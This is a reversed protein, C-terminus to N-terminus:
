LFRTLFKFKDGKEGIGYMKEDILVFCYPRNPDSDSIISDSLMAGNDISKKYRGDMVVNSFLNTKELLEFTDKGIDELTFPGVETRRLAILHGRSNLSLAIDRSLSRIYTGKSVAADFELVGDKYSVVSLSSIEIERPEMEVDKGSRALMYARKGDVHLASYLPPTQLQKGIFTPIIREIENLTPIHSSEGVVSGEPDLTDTEVGFQLKGRYKKGFSSFVPNLRTAAGTFVVMLGSAFKDLTGAHGVKEGKHEKKVPYLSAFSTVGEKKDMLLLSFDSRM